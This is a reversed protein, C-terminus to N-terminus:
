QYQSVFTGAEVYRGIAGPNDQLGELFLYPCGVRYVRAFVEQADIWLQRRSDLPSRRLTGCPSHVADQPAGTETRGCIDKPRNATSQSM